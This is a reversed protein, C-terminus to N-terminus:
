ECNPHKYRMYICVRLLSMRCHYIAPFILSPHTSNLALGRQYIASSLVFFVAFTRDVNSCYLYIRSHWESLLIHSLHLSPPIFRSFWMALMQVPERNFSSKEASPVACFTPLFSEQVGQLEVSFPPTAVTNCIKVCNEFHRYPFIRTLSTDTFWHDNCKASHPNPSPSPFQPTNM